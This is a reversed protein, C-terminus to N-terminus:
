KIPSSQTLCDRYRSLIKDFEQKLMNEPMYGVLDAVERGACFFKMTPLSMVGYRSAIDPSEETNLSAFGMKGEYAGEMDKLIPTLRKCWSCWSAWFEVLTLKDNKLVAEDWNGSKVEQM